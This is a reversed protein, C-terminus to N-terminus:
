PQARTSSITTITISISACPKTTSPSKFQVQPNNNNLSLKCSSGKLLHPLHYITTNATATAASFGLLLHLYPLSTCSSVLSSRSIPPPRSPPQLHTWSPAAFTTTVIPSLTSPVGVIWFGFSFFNLYYLYNNFYIYIYFIFILSIFQHNLIFKAV